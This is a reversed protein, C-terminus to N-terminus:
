LPNQIKRQILNNSVKTDRLNETKAYYSVCKRVTYHLM